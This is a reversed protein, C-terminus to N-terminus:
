NRQSDFVLHTQGTMGDPFAGWSRMRYNDKDIALIQDRAGSSSLVFVFQSVSQSDTAVYSLVTGVGM